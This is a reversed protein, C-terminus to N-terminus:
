FSFSSAVSMLWFCVTPLLSSCAKQRLLLLTQTDVPQPFVCLLVPYLATTLSSLPLRSTSLDRAPARLCVIGM